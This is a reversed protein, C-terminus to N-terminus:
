AHVSIRNAQHVLLTFQQGDEDERSANEIGGKLRRAGAIFLGVAALEGAELMSGIQANKLLRSVDSIGGFVAAKGAELYLRAQSTENIRRTVEGVNTSPELRRVRARGLECACAAELQALIKPLELLEFTHSDVSFNYRPFQM